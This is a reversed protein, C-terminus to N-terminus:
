RPMLAPIYAPDGNASPGSFLKPPLVALPLPDLRVWEIRWGAIKWVGDIKRYKEFEYGCGFFGRREGTVPDPKWEMYDDLAWIGNAETSSLFEIEPMSFRHVSISGELTAAVADIFADGGEVGHEGGFEFTGESHFLSRAADWDRMDFLRAFRAKLELIEKYDPMSILLAGPM